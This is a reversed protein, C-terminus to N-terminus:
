LLICGAVTGYLDINYIRVFPLIDRGKDQGYAGVANGGFHGPRNRQLMDALRVAM